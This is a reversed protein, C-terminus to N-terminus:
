SRWHKRLYPSQAASTSEFLDAYMELTMSAKAHAHMAQVAEVNAGASM